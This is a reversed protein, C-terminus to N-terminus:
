QCVVSSCCKLAVKLRWQDIEKLAYNTRRLILAPWAINAKRVNSTNLLGIM